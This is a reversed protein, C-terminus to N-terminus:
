KKFGSEVEALTELTQIHPWVDPHALVWQKDLFDSISRSGLVDALSGAKAAQLLQHAAYM